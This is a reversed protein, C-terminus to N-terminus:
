LEATDLHNLTRDLTRDLSSEYRLLLELSPADDDVPPFFQTKRTAQKKEAIILRRLRWVTVALRDVHLEELTGARKFDIRLGTLLSDFEARSDIIV